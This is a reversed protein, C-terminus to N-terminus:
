KNNVNKQLNILCICNQFYLIIGSLRITHRFTYIIFIADLKFAAM